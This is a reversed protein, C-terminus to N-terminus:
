GFCPDAWVTGGLSRRIPLAGASLTPYGVPQWPNEEGIAPHYQIQRYDTLLPM